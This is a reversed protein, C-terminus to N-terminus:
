KLLLGEITAEMQQRDKLKFGRKQYVINGQQDIMYSTPLADVAYAQALHGEPDYVIPFEAPVQELFELALQREEDLNIAIIEFGQDAYRQRIENMWPFSKRCPTCWSAFFDVYVVKKGQYSSLTLVQDKSNDLVFDPAPQSQAPSPLLAIMCILCLGLWPLLGARIPSFNLVTCQSMVSVRNM